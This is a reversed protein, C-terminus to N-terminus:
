VFGMRKRAEKITPQAIERAKKAGQDLINQIQKQSFEKKARRFPALKKILLEALNKKFEAYGSDKFEKELVSFSKESFGSYIALLNSVGPKKIPDYEITKGPDTVARMVREKIAKESEFFGISGRPDGTKSMKKRPDQLSMVKGGIKPIQVRPLVFTRGFKRNFRRGIERALEVHQKQDIGVPVLNTQYLLVDAAMLIPYNLLGASPAEKQSQSKEKYQTMRFLEGVSVVNGLLWALEAHEKVQSQVFFLCKKPDLGAVLCAIALDRIYDQLKKPDWPTTIAHWDVICFVCDAKEQLQVWNRIAGLFNGIHLDGTPRIGSFVRM